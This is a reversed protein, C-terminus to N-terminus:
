NSFDNYETLFWQRNIRNFRYEVNIGNEVGEWCFLREDTDRMERKFNDYIQPRYEQGGFLRIIKWDKREIRSSDVEDMDWQQSKLPFKIRSIQFVSDGIFKYVFNNFEEKDSNNALVQEDIFDFKEDVSQKIVGRWYGLGFMVLSIMLTILIRKM